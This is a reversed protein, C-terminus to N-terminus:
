NQWVAFNYFLMKRESDLISKINFVLGNMTSIDKM